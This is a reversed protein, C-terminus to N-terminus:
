AFADHDDMVMHSDDQKSRLTTTNVTTQQCFDFSM